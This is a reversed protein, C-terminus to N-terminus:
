SLRTGSKFLLPTRIAEEIFKKLPAHQRRLAANDPLEDPLGSTHTFLHLVQTDEKGQGTFEPIYRTVRDSLNLKGREVLLMAGLYIVPKTVSAMYFMADRRIPSADPEPGQRGFFRPAVTKGSRGVLIAGGPVPPKPGTTWQEMLDYAVQLRRPDLGIDEAKVQPLGTGTTEAGVGSSGSGLIASGAAVAGLLLERRTPECRQQM